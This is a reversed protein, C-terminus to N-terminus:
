HFVENKHLTPSAQPANAAKKSISISMSPDKKKSNSHQSTPITEELFFSGLLEEEMTEIYLEKIIDKYREFVANKFCSHTEISVKCRKELGGQVFSSRLYLSFTLEANCVNGQRAYIRVRHVKSIEQPHHGATKCLNWGSYKKTILINYFSCTSFHWTVFINNGFGRLGCFKIITNRLIKLHLILDVCFSLNQTIAIKKYIYIYIYIFFRSILDVPVKM